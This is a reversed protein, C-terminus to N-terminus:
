CCDSLLSRKKLMRTNFLCLYFESCTSYLLLGSTVLNSAPDGQVDQRSLQPIDHLIRFILELQTHWRKKSAPIPDCVTQVHLVVKQSHQSELTMMVSFNEPKLLGDVEVPLQVEKKWGRRSVGNAWLTLSIAEELRSRMGRDDGEFRASLHLLCPYTYFDACDLLLALYTLRVNIVTGFSTRSKVTTRPWSGNRTVLNITM